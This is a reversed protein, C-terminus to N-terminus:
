TRLAQRAVVFARVILAVVTAAGVVLWLRSQAVFIASVAFLVPLLYAGSWKLYGGFSPMKVGASEAVSKVMFNPGNGIYTMAGFLVAGLSIATLHIEPVGPAFGIRPDGPLQEAISYFTAYTPANDLFSSLGGTVWYFAIEDLPLRPAVQALYKLAPIMTLFIGVFIAGVELIPSWSFRNSEYRVRKSGFVLSAAAAALMLLERMPLYDLWNAHGAEVANLNISPALAVSAIIVAFFLFNISGEVRLPKIETMDRRVAAPDELKHMKHDLAYYTFLLLSNVLLWHALLGFTWNFPVGRLMGLFLPPDGLPTLLGGCNAVIFIAFIITHAVHRRQVNTKLIPRVLLMAAGTTGIFSAILGGFALFAVNNRPSAEIDGRLHIGGSVVFLALLLSIFQFYELAAHGVAAGEGASLFWVSVPVGLLLAVVLQNRPREWWHAVAGILPLTAIAALMLVFPVLGWVPIAM